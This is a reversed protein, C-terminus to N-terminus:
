GPLNDWVEPEAPPLGTDLDEETDPEITVPQRIKALHSFAQAGGILIRPDLNMDKCWQVIEALMEGRTQPGGVDVNANVNLSAVVWGARDLLVEACKRREAPPTLVDDRLERLTQCSLLIDAQLRGQALQRLHALVDPRRLLRSAVADAAADTYGAVRAAKGQHRGGLELFADCFAVMKPTLTIPAPLASM